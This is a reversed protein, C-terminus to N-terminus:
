ENDGLGLQDDVTIVYNNLNKKIEIVRTTLEKDVNEVYDFGGIKDLTILNEDNVLISDSISAPLTLTHRGSRDNFTIIIKEMLNFLDAEEIYTYLDIVKQANVKYLYKAKLNVFDYSLYTDPQFIINYEQYGLRLRVDSYIDAHTYNSDINLINTKDSSITPATYTEYRSIDWKLDADKFLFVGGCSLLVKNMVDSLKPFPDSTKEPICFSLDASNPEDIEILFQAKNIDSASVSAYQTLLDYIIGIGKFACDFGYGADGITDDWPGVFDTDSFKKGQVQAVVIDSSTVTRGLTGSYGSLFKINASGKHIRGYYDRLAVATEMTAIDEGFYVFPVQHRFANEGAVQFFTFSSNIDIYFNVVSNVGTINRIDSGYSPPDSYSPISNTLLIRTDLINGAFIKGPEITLWIRTTPSGVTTKGVGFDIFDYFSKLLSDNDTMAASMVGWEQNDTEATGTSYDLNILKIIPMGYVIRKAYGEANSELNPFDSASYFDSENLYKPRIENRFIETDDEVTIRVANYDTQVDTILTSLLPVAAEADNSYKWMKIECKNFSTGIFLGNFFQTYNQISVRSATIPIFGVLSDTVTRSVSPVELLWPEWNVKPTASNTPTEYTCAPETSFHLYYTVTAITTTPWGSLVATSECLYLRNTASDWYYSEGTTPISGVESIVRGNIEVVVPNYSFSWYYTSFAGSTGQLTKDAQDLYRRPAIRVLFKDSEQEFVQQKILSLVGGIQSLQGINNEADHDMVPNPYDIIWGIHSSYNGTYTDAYLAFAYETNADMSFHKFEFYIHKRGYANASSEFHAKISATTWSNTSTAVLTKIGNRYRYVKMALGTVVPDNQFAIQITCARLIIRSQVRAISYASLGDLDGTHYRRAFWDRNESM